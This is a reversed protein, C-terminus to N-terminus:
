CKKKPISPFKSLKNIAFLKLDNICQEPASKKKTPAQLRVLAANKLAAGAADKLCAIM